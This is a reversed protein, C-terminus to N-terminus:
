IIRPPLELLRAHFPRRHIADLPHHVVFDFRAEGFARRRPERQQLVAVV